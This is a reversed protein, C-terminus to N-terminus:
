VMININFSSSVKKFDNDQTVIVLDFEKAVACQYSDDFDLGFQQAISAVLPYKQDSLSIVNSQEHIEDYFKEFVDFRKLKFLIVGISHLSFDSILVQEIHDILFRKCTNKNEQGLIIELYINTDALYRM